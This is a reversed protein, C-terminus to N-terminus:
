CLNWRVAMVFITQTESNPVTIKNPEMMKVGFKEPKLV